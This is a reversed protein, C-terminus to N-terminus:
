SLLNIDAESWRFETGNELRLGFFLVPGSSWPAAQEFETAYTGDKLKYKVLPIDDFMGTEGIKETIFGDDRGCADCRNKVEANEHLFHMAEAPLGQPQSM